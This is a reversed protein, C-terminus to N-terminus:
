NAANYLYDTPGRSDTITDHVGDAQLSDYAYSISDSANGAQYDAVSRYYLTQILRQVADYRYLTIQGKFDTHTQILGNAYYTMGETLAPQGSIVPLTHSTERGDQDY